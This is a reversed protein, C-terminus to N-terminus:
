RLRGNYTRAGSSRPTDSASSPAPSPSTSSTLPEGTRTRVEQTEPRSPISTLAQQLSLGTVLVDEDDTDMLGTLTSQAYESDESFKLVDFPKGQRGALRRLKAILQLTKQEM